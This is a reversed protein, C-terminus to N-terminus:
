AWPVWAHRVQQPDDHEAHAERQGRRVESSHCLARPRHGQSDHRVVHDHGPRAPQDGDGQVQFRFQGYAQDQHTARRGAGRGVHHGEQGLAVNGKGHGDSGDRGEDGRDDGGQQDQEEGTGVKLDVGRAHDQVDGLRDEKRHDGSQQGPQEELLEDAFTRGASGQAEATTIERITAM